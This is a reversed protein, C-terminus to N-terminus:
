LDVRVAASPTSENGKRDVATVRYYVAGRDPPLDSWRNVVVVAGNVKEFPGDAGGSRYINYGQLDMEWNPEWVLEVRRDLPTAGLGQPASPAFLDASSVAAARSLPGFAPPEEGSRVQVAYYYTLEPLVTADNYRRLDGEIDALPQLDEESRGRFVRYGVVRPPISGDLNRAPPQWQLLVGAETATLGSIEPAAAPAVPAIVAMNSFESAVKRSSFFRLAYVFSRQFILHPDSFAVTDEFRYRGARFIAQLDDPWLRAIVQGERELQEQTVPPPQLTRRLPLRYIAVTGLELPQGGAYTSPLSFDLIIHNERQELRLDQITAPPTLNPPVPEAVKACSTVAAGLWLLLFNTLFAPRCPKRRM